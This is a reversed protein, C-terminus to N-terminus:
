VAYSRWWRLSGRDGLRTDLPLSDVRTQRPTAHDPASAVAVAHPRPEQNVLRAERANPTTIHLEQTGRRHTSHRTQDDAASSRGTRSTAPSRSTPSQAVPQLQAASPRPLPRSEFRNAINVAVWATFAVVGLLLVIHLVRLPWPIRYWNHTWWDQKARARLLKTFNELEEETRPIGLETMPVQPLSQGLAPAPGPQPHRRPPSVSSTHTLRDRDAIAQTFAPDAAAAAGIWIRAEEIKGQQELSRGLSYQDRPDPKPVAVM